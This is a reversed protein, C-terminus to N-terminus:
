IRKLLKLEYPQKTTYVWINRNGLEKKILEELENRTEKINKHFTQLIKKRSSLKTAALAPGSIVTRGYYYRVGKQELAMPKSGQKCYIYSIIEYADYEPIGGLLRGDQELFSFYKQIPITPEPVTLWSPLVLMGLGAGSVRLFTRRTITEIKKM